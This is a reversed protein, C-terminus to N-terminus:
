HSLLFSGFDTVIHARYQPNYGAIPASILRQGDWVAPSAMLSARPLGTERWDPCDKVADGLAGIQLNPGQPGEIRWRGDWIEGLPVRVDKVANWERSIRTSAEDRSVLCGALTHRGGGTALAADLEVLAGWRPAYPSSGVWRLAANMIQRMAETPVPPVARRDLILDGRDERVVRRADEAVYLQLASKAQLLAFAAHQIAESDIGLPALEKLAARARVREFREDENSPDDVWAVDHRRLYDRLEDRTQQWFPRAWRVGHREFRSEMAALGDLGSKRALRMLFTEAVDDGTHGLVVGGIGRAAAWDAILRYRADRAANQLNGAGDWGTWVLTSHQIGHAACFEAVMRAEGAAEARLGHDVTVAEISQGSQVSLRWFVHLLAMSDGGGSVAVGIREPTKNFFATDAFHLLPADEGQEALWEPSLQM